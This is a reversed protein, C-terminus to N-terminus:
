NHPDRVLAVPLTLGSVVWTLGSRTPVTATSVESGDEPRLLLVRGTYRDLVVINGTEPDRVMGFFGYVHVDALKSVAGNATLRLLSRGDSVSPGNPEENAFLYNGSGDPMLASPEGTRPGHLPIEKVEGGPAFRYFRAVTFDGILLVFGGDAEVSLSAFRNAGPPLVTEHPYTLEKMSAGDPSIRWVAPRLADAALITGDPSVAVDAWESGRPADAIHTVAGGPTVRSISSESAVIYNGAADIALAFGSIGRAITTVSKRDASMRVLSNESSKQLVVYSAAGASAGFALAALPLLMRLILKM